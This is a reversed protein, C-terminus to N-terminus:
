RKISITRAIQSILFRNEKRNRQIRLRIAEAHFQIKAPTDKEYEQRESNTRRDKTLRIWLKGTGRDARTLTLTPIDTQRAEGGRM